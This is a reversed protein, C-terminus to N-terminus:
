SGMIKLLHKTQHKADDLANHYTGERVDEPIKIIEKM